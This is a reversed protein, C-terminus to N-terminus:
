ITLRSAYAAPNQETEEHYALCLIRACDTGTSGTTRVASVNTLGWYRVRVIQAISYTGM